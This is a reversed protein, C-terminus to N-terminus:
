DDTNTDINFFRYKIVINFSDSMVNLSIPLHTKNVKYLARNATELKYALSVSRQELKMNFECIHFSTDIGKNFEFM